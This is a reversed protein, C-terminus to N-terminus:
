NDPFIDRFAMRLGRQIEADAVGLSRLLAVHGRITGLVIADTAPDHGLKKIWQTTVQAHLAALSLADMDDRTGM